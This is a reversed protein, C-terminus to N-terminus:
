NVILLRIRSNALYFGTDGPAFAASVDVTKNNPSPVKLSACIVNDSYDVIIEFYSFNAASESLEVSGTSSGDYLIKYPLVKDGKVTIPGTFSAGGDKNISAVETLGTMSGSSTGAYKYFPIKSTTGTM